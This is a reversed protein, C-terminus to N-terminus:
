IVGSARLRRQEDCSLGLKGFVAENDQGLDGGAWRIEGPSGSMVVVIKGKLDLGALDDYKMEPITLGYGVFVLPAAVSPALDVRTSLIADDGLTVAEKKGDRVLSLSSDREVIQRSEFKVMQYFGSVGAPELGNSKLQDVIYAETNRLGASGTERGEMKDDALVKVFDWWTKGDFHSQVPQQSNALGVLLVSVVATCLHKKM